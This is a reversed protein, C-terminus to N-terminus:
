SKTTPGSVTYTAPLNCSERREGTSLVKGGTWSLLVVQFSFYNGRPTILM